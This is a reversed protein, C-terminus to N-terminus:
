GRRNRRRLVLTAVGFFLAASGPEPLTVVGTGSFYDDFVFTAGSGTAGYTGPLTQVVGGLVLGGVQENVGSGLIIFNQDAANAAGGGALKLTADNGIADTVGSQIEMRAIASPSTANTVEVTGSGLHATAGSVRLVGGAVLTGGTYTNNGTLVYNGIDISSGPATLTLKGPGSIVGSLSLSGTPTAAAGTGATAQSHLLTDSQLVVSTNSITVALGTDPRIAGPFVAFPGTTAGSGNLYLTAAGLAYSAGSIPNFQAGSNITFTATSSPNAASSIRTRGGNLFTPGTYTKGGTGYTMLGDGNKTM